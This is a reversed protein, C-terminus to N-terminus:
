QPGPVMACFGAICENPPEGNKPLCCDSSTTCRENTESCKDVPIENCTGSPESFEQMPDVVHCFGGCCDTGSTCKDGNKKCPDLAAFARHNGTGFEQGPLYFAPHSRDITYNGDPAIDVAAGWLQRQVGLNGYHRVADFFIWFYGGAAVPSVTPYYNKHLEEAGFPLYTTDSAADQPTAYGMARALITTTGSAVDAIFLDSRPGGPAGAGPIGGVGAGPLGPAGGGLGAGEGTFEVSDTRIFLVGKNDPLFFPWGPRLDTDEYLVRYDAASNSGADYRMVALGRGDNKIAHDNFVLMTGDPSFMPMLAGPVIGTSEVLSGDDTRYLRADTTGDGGLLSSRAIDMAQSTALFLSGDPYLAAYAARPGAPMPPPGATTSQDLVFSQGGSNVAASLLRSGNASVSHCGNCEAFVFAEAHGGPPIRLVIGNQGGPGGFGGAPFGGAPFGGANPAGGAGPVGAGLSLASNYSNYYISGKITAQAITWTSEIPGAAVGNSMVTLQVKYPETSGFTKEGAKAWVDEPLLLQGEATPALCGHYEFRPGVIHVYVANAGAQGEWMLTPPLMGRPFVTGDYPYLVRVSDAPGGAKLTQTDEPSLGAPNNPACADILIPELSGPEPQAATPQVGMPTQSPVSSPDALRTPNSGTSPASSGAAPTGPAAGSGAARESTAGRSPIPDVEAACAALTLLLTWHTIVPGRHRRTSLYSPARSTSTLLM